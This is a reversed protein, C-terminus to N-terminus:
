RLLSSSVQAISNERISRSTPRGARGQGPEGRGGLPLGTRERRGQGARHREIAPDTAVAAIGLGYRLNKQCAQSGRHRGRGDRPSVLGGGACLCTERADRAQIGQLPDRHGPRSVANREAGTLGTAASGSVVLRCAESSQRVRWIRQNGPVHSVHSFQPETQSVPTRWPKGSPMRSWRPFRRYPWAPPLM